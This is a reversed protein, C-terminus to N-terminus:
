LFFFIKELKDIKSCPNGFTKQLPGSLVKLNQPESMTETSYERKQKKLLGKFFM